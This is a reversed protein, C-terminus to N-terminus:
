GRSELYEVFRDRCAIAEERVELFGPDQKLSVWRPDNDIAPYSCHGQYIAQRLVRLAPEKHGCYALNAAHFYVSEPDQLAKSQVEAMDASARSEPTDQHCHRVVEPIEPFRNKVALSELLALAEAEKGEPLLM